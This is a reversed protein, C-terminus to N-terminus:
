TVLATLQDLVSGNGDHKAPTRDNAAADVLIEALDRVKVNEHQSIHRLLLFAEEADVALLQVLVGKAQEIVARHTTFEEIAREMEDTDIRRSAETVDVLLGNLCAVQGDPGRTRRGVAVVHHLDRAADVIRYSASFSAGPADIDTVHRAAEVDEPHVHACILDTTPVVEGPTFGHIRFVGPSWAWADRAVDYTFRGTSREDGDLGTEIRTASEGSM